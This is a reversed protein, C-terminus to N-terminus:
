PSQADRSHVYEDRRGLDQYAFIAFLAVGLLFSYLQANRAWTLPADRLNFSQQDLMVLIAQHTLWGFYLSLGVCVASAIATWPPGPRSRHRGARILLFGMAGLLTTALTTLLRHMERLGEIELQAWDTPKDSLVSYGYPPPAQYIYVTFAVVAALVLVGGSLLV